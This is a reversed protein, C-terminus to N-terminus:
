RRIGMAAQEKDLENKIWLGSGIPIGLWILILPIFMLCGVGCTVISGVSVLPILFFVAIIDYLFWGVLLAIGRNTRGAYLHGIGLFGLIGLLELLLAVTPDKPQAYGVGGQPPPYQQYYPQQPQPYGGAQPPTYQTIEGQGYQSPNYQPPAAYQTPQGQSGYNGYSGANPQPTEGGPSYQGPQWSYPDSAPAGPTEPTSGSTLPTSYPTSSPSYPQEINVTPTGEPPTPSASADTRAKEEGSGPVEPKDYM